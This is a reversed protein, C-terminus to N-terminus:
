PVEPYDSLRDAIEFFGNPDSVDVSITDLKGDVFDFEGAVNIANFLSLNVQVDLDFRDAGGSDDAKYSILLDNLTVQGLEANELSFTVAEVAFKGGVISLGKNAGSGLSLSTQFVEFDATYTGGIALSDPASGAGRVWAVSGHVVNLRLGFVSFSGSLGLNLSELEGDKILLGPMADTGLTAALVQTTAGTPISLRVDGYIQFEEDTRDYVFTLGDTTLKAGFLNFDATVAADLSQVQGSKIILGPVTSSGLNVEVSNGRFKATVDGGIEFRDATANYEFSLPQAPATAVDLGFLEFEGGVTFGFDKVSFPSAIFSLKLGAAVSSLARDKGADQQQSTLMVTGGLGFSHDTNSYEFTGNGSVAFGGISADNTNLPVIAKLGNLELGQASAIVYNTGDVTLKTNKLTAIPINLKDLSVTGQLKVQADATSGGDPNAFQILSSTFDLKVAPIEIPESKSPDLPQGNNSLLKDIDFSVVLGVGRTDVVPLPVSPSGGVVVIDLTSGSLAFQPETPKTRDFLQLKGTNGLSGTLDAQVLPLFAEAGTPAYGIEVIGGEAYLDRDAAEVFGNPANFRLGGYDKTTVALLARRELAEVTPVRGARGASDKSASIRRTSRRLPDLM